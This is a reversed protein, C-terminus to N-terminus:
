KAPELTDCVANVTMIPPTGMGGSVLELELPSLEGQQALEWGQELEDDTLDFGHRRALAAIDGKSEWVTKVENGLAADSNVRERFAWVAEM